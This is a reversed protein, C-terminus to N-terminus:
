ATAKSGHPVGTVECAITRVFGALERRVHSNGGQRRRPGSSHESPSREFREDQRCEGFLRDVVHYQLTAASLPTPLLWASQLQM